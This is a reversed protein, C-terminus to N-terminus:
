GRAEAIVSLRKCKKRPRRPATTNLGPEGEAQPMTGANPPQYLWRTPPHTSSKSPCTQV